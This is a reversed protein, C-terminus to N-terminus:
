LSISSIFSKLPGSPTELKPAIDRVCIGPFGSEVLPLIVEKAKETVEMDIEGQLYVTSINNEETVKYTM